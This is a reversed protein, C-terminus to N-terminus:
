SNNSITQIILLGKKTQPFAILDVVTIEEEVKTVWLTEGAELMVAADEMIRGIKEVDTIAMEGIM